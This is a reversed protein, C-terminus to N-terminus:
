KDATDSDHIGLREQQKHKEEEEIKRAEKLLERIAQNLGSVIGAALFIVFLVKNKFTWRDLYYGILGGVLVNSLVIIAFM